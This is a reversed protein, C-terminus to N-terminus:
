VTNKRIYDKAQTKSYFVKNEKESRWNASKSVIWVRQEQLDTTEILHLM